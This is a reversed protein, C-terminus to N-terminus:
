GQQAMASQTAGGALAVDLQNLDKEKLGAKLKDGLVAAFATTFDEPWTTPDTVRRAYVMMAEPINCLVVRRAPTYAADNAIAFLTPRPDPNFLFGYPYKMQRVKLCDSPYEYEFLWPPPPYATSWPQDFYNAPASKLLTASATRSAFQWDGDRLMEDRTVGYIDLAQSAAESGDYLNSVRLAYGINRLALNVIDAPSTLVAM